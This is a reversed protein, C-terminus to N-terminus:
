SCYAIIKKGKPIRTLNAEIADVPVNISGKIHERDYSAKSHTDIFVATGADFDKKAEDLTIRSVMPYPIEAAKRTPAPVANAPATGHVTPKNTATETCGALLGASVILM